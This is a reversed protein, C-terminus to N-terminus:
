ACLITVDGLHKVASLAKGTQDVSLEGGAIEALLLVAM